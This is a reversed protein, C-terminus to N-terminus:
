APRSFRLRLVEDTPLRRDRDHPPPEAPPLQMDPFEVAWWEREGPGAYYRLYLAVDEESGTGVLDIHMGDPQSQLPLWTETALENRWLRAYLARDDLHDTSHLFVHLEALCHILLWLTAPLVAEPLEGPPPFRLGRAALEKHLTTEPYEDMDLFAAAGPPEVGTVAPLEAAARPVAAARTPPHKRCLRRITCRPLHM